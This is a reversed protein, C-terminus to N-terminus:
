HKQRDVSGPSRRCPGFKGIEDSGHESLLYSEHTGARDADGGDPRKELDNSRNSASDDRSEGGVPRAVGGAVFREVEGLAVNRDGGDADHDEERHDRDADQEM